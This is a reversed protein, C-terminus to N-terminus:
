ARMRHVCRCKSALPDHQPRQGFGVDAAQGLNV